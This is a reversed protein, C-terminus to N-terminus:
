FHAVFLSPALFTAHMELEFSCVMSTTGLSGTPLLPSEFATAQETLPVLPSPAPPAPALPQLESRHTRSLSPEAIDRAQTQSELIATGYESKTADAPKNHIPAHIPEPHTSMDRTLPDASSTGHLPQTHCQQTSCVQSEEELSGLNESPQNVENTASAVELSRGEERTCETELQQELVKHLSPQETSVAPPSPPSSTM